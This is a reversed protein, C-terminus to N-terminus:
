SQKPRGLLARPTFMGISECDESRGLRVVDRGRDDTMSSPWQARLNWLNEFFRKRENREDCCRKPYTEGLVVGAAGIVDNPASWPEYLCDVKFTGIGRQVEALECSDPLDKLEPCWKRVYDGNKDWYPRRKYDTRVYYPDFGVCGANMWMNANIAPDYDVLYEAFHKMGQEWSVGLGEVLCTSVALRVKQPMWGEIALQRMGADVLPFGTTGDKWLRALRQNKSSERESDGHNNSGLMATPNKPYYGDRIPTGSAVDPFLSVVAYTYDRWCIRRVFSARDKAVAIPGDPDASSPTLLAHYVQKPSLLGRALYPSLRSALHTRKEAQQKEVTADNGDKLNNSASSPLYDFFSQLANVADAESAPWSNAISSGWHTKRSQTYGVAQLLDEIALPNTVVAENLGRHQTSTGAIISEELGVPEPKPPPPPTHQLRELLYDVFPILPSRFPHEVIIDKWPLKKEENAYDLLSHGGGFSFPVLGSEELNRRLADEFENDHSEMYYVETAGTKRCICALEDACLRAQAEQVTVLSSESSSSGVGSGIIGLSLQGCLTRNLHDLVNAVFVDSAIGGTAVDVPSLDNNNNNVGSWLYVPVIKSQTIAIAESAAAHSAKVAADLADNDRIRLVHDRFWVVRTTAAASPVVRISSSRSSLSLPCVTTPLLILLLSIISLKM